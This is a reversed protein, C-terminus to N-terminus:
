QWNDRLTTTRNLIIDEPKSLDDAIFYGHREFQYQDGPLITKLNEEIKIEKETLSNPNLDDLYNNNEGPHAEKFLRDYLNVKANVAYKCSLWHINGKVKIADAGPTGSKTDPLYDCFIKTVNGNIDKEFSTCEIVFGYRLRVQAGPSLRFYKTVPVEM